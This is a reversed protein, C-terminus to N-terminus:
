EAPTYLATQIQSVVAAYDTYTVFRIGKYLTEQKLDSGLNITVINNAEKSKVVIKLLTAFDDGETSAIANQTFETVLSNVGSVGQSM